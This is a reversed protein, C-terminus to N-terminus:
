TRPKRAAALDQEANQLSDGTADLCDDLEFHYTALDAPTSDKRLRQLDAQMQQLAVIVPALVKPVNYKAHSSESTTEGSSLDDVADDFEPLIAKYQRLQAYMQAARDPPRPSATRIQEFRTLRQQAFHLLLPVRKDLNGATNRVQDAEAPTLPDRLQAAAHVALAAAVALLALSRWRM